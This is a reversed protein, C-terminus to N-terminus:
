VEIGALEDVLRQERPRQLLFALAAAACEGPSDHEDADFARQVALLELDRLRAEDDAALSMHAHRVLKERAFMEFDDGVFLADDADAVEAGAVACEEVCEGRVVRLHLGAVLDPGSYVSEPDLVPLAQPFHRTILSSHHTILSSHHTI